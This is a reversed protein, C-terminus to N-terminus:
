GFVRTVSWALLGLGGLVGVAGVVYIASVVWTHSMDGKLCWEPPEGTGPDQREYLISVSEGVEAWGGLRQVDTEAQRDIGQEDQWGLTAHRVRGGQKSAADRVAIVKAETPVGRERLAVVTRRVKAGFALARLGGVIVLAAFVVLAWPGSISGGM